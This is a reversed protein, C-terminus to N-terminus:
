DAIPEFPHSVIQGGHEALLTEALAADTMAVKTMADAITCTPAIVSITGDILVSLGSPGKHPTRIEDGFKRRSAYNSSTAIACDYLSLRDVIQGTGNRIHIDQSEPGFVRLDGGANVIGREAGSKRLAEVALDVAYGKAIGGLDIMVRRNCVIHTDGVIEIDNTNGNFQALKAGFPRPLFGDRVLAHGVSIDFLGRTRSRLSEAIRIVRILHEDVELVEGPRAANVRSIDSDQSHFSMVEHILGIAEFGAAFCTESTGPLAIEVFTGLLARARRVLPEKEAVQSSLQM